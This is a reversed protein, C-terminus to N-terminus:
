PTAASVIEFTRKEELNYGLLSVANELEDRDVAGGNHLKTILEALRNACAHGRRIIHSRQQEFLSAAVNEAVTNTEDPMQRRVWSRCGEIRHFPPAERLMNAAVEDCETM